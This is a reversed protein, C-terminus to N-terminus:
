TRVMPCAEVGDDHFSQCVGCYWDADYPASTPTEKRAAALAAAVPVAANYINHSRRWEKIVATAVELAQQTAREPTTTM